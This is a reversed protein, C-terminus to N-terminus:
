SLCLSVKDWNDALNEFIQKLDEERSEGTLGVLEKPYKQEESAM